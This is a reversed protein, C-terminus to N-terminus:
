LGVHAKAEEAIRKWQDRDQTKRRWGEIGMERLGEQVDNLWRVKPRCCQEVLSFYEETKCGQVLLISNKFYIQNQYDARDQAEM